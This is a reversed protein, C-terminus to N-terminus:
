SDIRIKECLSHEEDSVQSMIFNCMQESEQCIRFLSYIVIEGTSFSPCARVDYNMDRIFGDEGTTRNVSFDHHVVVQHDKTLHCDLEFMEVGNMLGRSFSPIGILINGHNIKKMSTLPLCLIKM